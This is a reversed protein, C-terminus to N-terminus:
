ERGLVNLGDINWKGVVQMAPLGKFATQGPVPSQSEPCWEKLIGAQLWRRLYDEWLPSRQTVYQAGHDFVAGGFRRNAMRGGVGRGKDIVVVDRGLRSLTSAASLGAIGAGVILVDIFSDKM